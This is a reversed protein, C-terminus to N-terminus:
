HVGILFAVKGHDDCANEMNMPPIAIYHERMELRYKGKGNQVLWELYDRVQEVNAM